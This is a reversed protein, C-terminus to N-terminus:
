RLGGDMLLVAVSLAGALLAVALCLQVLDWARSRLFIRWSWRRVLRAAAVPKGDRADVILQALTERHAELWHEAAYHAHTGPVTVALTEEAQAVRRAQETVADAEAQHRHYAELGQRWPLPAETRQM